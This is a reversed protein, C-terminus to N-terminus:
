KKNLRKKLKEIEEAQTELRKNQQILYLTLEEIKRLLLAQNDGVSIGDKEVEKASPIDPLHKYRLIYKELESLTRLKYNKDFVYDAWLLQTIQLKKAWIEGKVTLDGRPTTTNIMVKGNEDIRMRPLDTTKFILPQTTKTGIFHDSTTGLNGDLSWASVTPPANVTINVVSSTTIAGLDDYAKATLQYTGATANNWTFSYPSAGLDEEIYHIRTTGRYFEVKAIGDADSAHVVIPINSGSAYTANNVPEQISVTPPLNSSAFVEIQAIKVTWAAMNPIFVRLYRASVPNPIPIVHYQYESGQYSAGQNVSVRDTWDNANGTNSSQIKFVSVSNWLTWIVKVECVSYSQELDIALGNDMTTGHFWDSSIAGDTVVGPIPSSMTAIATVAKGEAINSTGCNQGIVLSVPLSFSILILFIKRM